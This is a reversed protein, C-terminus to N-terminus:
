NVREANYGIKKLTEVIENENVDETEVELLRDPSNIDVKWSAIGKIANLHPTVTKICNGCKISTKFKLTKM